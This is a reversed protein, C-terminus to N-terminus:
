LKRTVKLSIDFYKETLERTYDDMEKSVVKLYKIYKQLKQRDIDETRISNTLGVMTVVPKRIVHSIDFLIEELGRIYEKKETIDEITGYWVVTEDDRREPNANNWLWRIKGKDWMIRYEINWAGLNLFSDNLSEKVMDRDDPHIIQFLLEPNGTLKEATLDPHLGVVGKSVFTFSREGSRTMRLKYIAGPVHDTLKKLREANFEIKDSQEILISRTALYDMVKKALLKLAKKQDESIHHAKNDIVCLTGLVNGNPTELPAGAYFRIHPEGCVLPNNRFREDHLPDDVVLVKKPDHFTHQCFSLERPVEQVDVGKKAKFWQRKDDIFTILSIPTDCIASAIEVLDDLEQESSTDLIKYRKLDELRDQENMM